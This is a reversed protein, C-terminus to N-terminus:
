GELACLKIGQDQVAAGPLLRRRALIAEERKESIWVADIDLETCIGTPVLHLRREM